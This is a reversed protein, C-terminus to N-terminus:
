EDENHICTNVLIVNLIVQGIGTFTRYEILIIARM